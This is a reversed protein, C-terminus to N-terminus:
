LNSIMGAITKMMRFMAAVVPHTEELVLYATSYM